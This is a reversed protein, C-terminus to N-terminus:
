VTNIQWSLNIEHETSVLVKFEGNFAPYENRFRILQLLRQVVEKELAEDIEMTSFNHRNIERGEGTSEVKEDDNKGALLGVYYVQPIGPDFFRIAGAALYADDECNLVSYYSCRIQHVDFGDKDKH